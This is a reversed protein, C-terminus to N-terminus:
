GALEDSIKLIEAAACLHIAAIQLGKSDCIDLAERTLSLAVGLANGGQKQRSQM